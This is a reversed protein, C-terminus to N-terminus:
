DVRINELLKAAHFLMAEDGYQAILQLGIPGPDTSDRSSGENAPLSIAPLGALSAPVTLVDDRYSDLASHQLVSSLRPARTPATPSLLVDIGEDTTGDSSLAYLPNPLAFTRDFDRRVLTRVKQAKIFHNEMASASLSYAGLLIRRRVEEGLGLARAATHPGHPEQIDTLRKGYRLSDYKALNSSAEAPALIYYASLAKKTSPMSVAHVIHGRSQLSHLTRLWTQRVVPELEAINCELPVGIRLRAKLKRSDLLQVIRRRSDESLSTPDSEDHGTIAHFTEQAVSTTKALIGVTDFSNAYAVVGYRSILGYSPKFGVIGNYAAPLRISGGTDTGLAAWCQDTAVAVASGGSSGGASMPEKPPGSASKVSGFASNTSHSGMGFEDMNTKGAIVAGGNQLKRVVTADFPSRYDELIDSACTMPQYRTCINDKLAILQGNVGIRRAGAKSLSPLKGRVSPRPNGNVQEAARVKELVQDDGLRHLFANLSVRDRQSALRREASKLLSM